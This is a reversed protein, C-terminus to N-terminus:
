GRVCSAEGSCLGPESNGGGTVSGAVARFAKWEKTVYVCEAQHGVPQNCRMSLRGTIRKGCRPLDKHHFQEVHARGLARAREQTHAPGQDDVTYHWPHNSDNCSWWWEQGPLHLTRQFVKYGTESM